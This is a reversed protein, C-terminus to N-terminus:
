ASRTLTAPDVAPIQGKNGPNLVAVVNRVYRGGVRENLDVVEGPEQGVVLRVKPRDIPMGIAPPLCVV